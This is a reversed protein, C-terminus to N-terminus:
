REHIVINLLKEYIHSFTKSSLYPYLTLHLCNQGSSVPMAEGFTNEIHTFTVNSYCMLALRLLIVILM